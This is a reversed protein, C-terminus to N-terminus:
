WHRHATRRLRLWLWSPGGSRCDAPRGAPWRRCGDRRRWSDGNRQERAPAPRLDAAAAPVPAAACCLRTCLRASSSAAPLLSSCASGASPVCRSPASLRRRAAPLVACSATSSAPLTRATRLAGGQASGTTGGPAGGPARLLLQGASASPTSVRATPRAAPAPLPFGSAPLRAASWACSDDIMCFRPAGNQSLQLTCLPCTQHTHRKPGRAPLRHSTISQFPASSPRRKMSLPAPGRSPGQWSCSAAGAEAMQCAVVPRM